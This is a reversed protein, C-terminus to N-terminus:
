NRPVINWVPNTSYNPKVSRSDFIRWAEKGNPVNYDSLIAIAPQLNSPFGTTADSYGIMEGIKKIGDANALMAPSNCECNAMLREETESRAPEPMAMLEAVPMAGCIRTKLPVSRKYVEKYSPYLPEERSNRVTTHYISAFIWCYDKSTFPTTISKSNWVLLPKAEQFGLDALYGISWTFFAQQWPANETNSLSYGVTIIGLKNADPNNTYEKNFFDINQNVQNLFYKKLPHDDPTIFAAQGLTRLAWAMGRLQQWKVLAKDLGRYSPSTEFANFNAWFQLEELYYYDGTVLYPLFAFSPQHASDAYYPSKCEGTCIPLANLGKGILNSHTSLYPYDVLSVPLDTNHDRYHISWSGAMDATSLTANKPRKDMTLLYHVAWVPLPGIDAHAGTTPMYKTALGVAMPTALYNNFQGYFKALSKEDVVVTRDYNPISKTKILYHTDHIIHLDPEAESWFVKRWRSQIFHTLDKQSFVNKDNLTIDVDYHLNQPNPQYTWNNEIAIDLRVNEAASYKRIFFRAMLLPHAAGKEDTFSVPVGIEKVINGNLWNIVHDANSFAKQKPPALLKCFDGQLASKVNDCGLTAKDLSASYSKGAITVTVAANLQKAISNNHAEAPQSESSKPLQKYLRLTSAKNVIASIVAHRVSGDQYRAKVDIQLPIANAEADKGILGYNKPVDGEAFVQGFTVLSQNAESNGRQLNIATIYNEDNIPPFSPAVSVATQVLPEALKAAVPVLKAPASPLEAAPIPKVAAAVPKKLTDARNAPKHKLSAEVKQQYSLEQKSYYGLDQRIREIKADSDPVDEANVMSFFSLATLLLLWRLGTLKM